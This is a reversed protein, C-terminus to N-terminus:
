RYERQAFQKAERGIQYPATWQKGEPNNNGHGITFMALKNNILHIIEHWISGAISADQDLKVPHRQLKRSSIFVDDPESPNFMAMARSWPNFPKFTGVEIVNSELHRQIYAILASPSMDCMDFTYHSAIHSIFREDKLLRNALAVGDVVRRDRSYTIIM